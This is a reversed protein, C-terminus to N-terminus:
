GQAKPSKVTSASIPSQHSTHNHNLYSTSTKFITHPFHKIARTENPYFGINTLQVIINEQRSGLTIVYILLEAETPSKKGNPPITRKTGMGRAEPIQRRFNHNITEGSQAQWDSIIQCGNAGISRIHRAANTTQRVITKNKLKVTHANASSKRGSPPMLTALAMSLSEKHFPRKQPIHVTQTHISRNVLAPAQPPGRQLTSIYFDILRGCPM